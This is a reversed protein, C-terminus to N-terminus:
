KKLKRSLQEKIEINLAAIQVLKSSSLLANSGGSEMGFESTFCRMASPLTPTGMHSYTMTLSRIFLGTLSEECPKRADPLKDM